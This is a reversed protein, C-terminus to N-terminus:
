LSFRNRLILYESRRISATILKPFKEDNAHFFYVSFLSFNLYTQTVIPANTVSLFESSREQRMRTRCLGISFSHIAPDGSFQPFIKKEKTKEQRPGVKNM